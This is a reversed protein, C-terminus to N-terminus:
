QWTWSALVSGAVADRDASAVTDSFSFTIVYTQDGNTAYYQEIWYATGNSSLSAQLHASESGGVTVRPMVEVGVAGSQELEEVGLTEVQEPTIAGAPSIIVNVNDAFGDADTLDVALTDPSFGPVGGEPYEWGEPVRYSYGDGTMTEGTAPAVGSSGGDTQSSSGGGGTEVAPSACGVLLLGAAVVLATLPASRNM